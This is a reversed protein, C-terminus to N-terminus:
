SPDTRERGGGPWTPKQQRVASRFSVFDKRRAAWNAISHKHRDASRVGECLLPDHEVDCEHDETQRKQRKHAEIRVGQTLKLPELHTFRDDSQDDGYPEAEIEEVCQDM